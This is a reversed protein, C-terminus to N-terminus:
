CIEVVKRIRTHRGKLPLSASRMSLSQPLFLKQKHGTNSINWETRNFSRVYKLKWTEAEVKNWLSTDKEKENVQNLGFFFFFLRSLVILIVIAFLASPWRLSAPSKPFCHAQTNQTTNKDQRFNLAIQWVEEQGAQNTGKKHLLDSNNQSHKWVEWTNCTVAANGECFYLFCM